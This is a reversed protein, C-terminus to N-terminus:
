GLGSAKSRRQKPEGSRLSRKLRRMPTTRPGPKRPKDEPGEIKSTNIHSDDLSPPTNAKTGVNARRPALEVLDAPASSHRLHHLRQGREFQDRPPKLIHGNILHTVTPSSTERPATRRRYFTPNPQHKKGAQARATLVRTKWRSAQGRQEREV